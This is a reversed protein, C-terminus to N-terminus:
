LLRDHCLWLPSSWIATFGMADIYDLHDIIGRIDGGHRGYDDERDIEKENLSSDTDNSYDGNAFRDPTILYIADSNDFGEYDKGAKTRKKLEYSYVATSGEPFNFKLDMTGPKVSNAIRLDVFLYNPSDATHVKKISVGPYNLQPIASGVNEGHIMLQLSSNEFGTWWYPPEVRTIQSSVQFAACLCILLFLKKM